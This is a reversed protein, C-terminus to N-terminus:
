TRYTPYCEGILFSSVRLNHWLLCVRECLRGKVVFVAALAAKILYKINDQAKATHTEHSVHCTQETYDCRPLVSCNGSSANGGGGGRSALPPNTVVASGDHDGGGALAFFSSDDDVGTHRKDQM